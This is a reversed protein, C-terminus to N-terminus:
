QNAPNLLNYITARGAPNELLRGYNTPQGNGLVLSKVTNSNLASNAARGGAIVAPVLPLTGTAGAASLGLGGMVVRQAAGHPSERTRLFQAAIDSLESLDPNKLGKLGAMKAISVGGEAGNQVMSEVDLMNGYQQRVSKFAAAEQPGLSRDLADMLRKKLERAYFAENSNRSGIRDLTKKINYAAQGDIAGGQATKELILDVQKGIIRAGAEDLEDAALKTVNVLDDLFTNDVKVGNSSLTTEFKKGLDNSAKKVAAVVNDSDQGFTRSVAKNFQSLMKEETGARGSLPVYNLSSAVANLPRSNAIRDAPIDIGLDVARQYLAAVEPSAGKPLVANRVAKGAEGAVKVAGPLGGGIVAGTAADAPNVLGASVGGTIAGGATRTAADAVKGGLTTAAPTGLRFGGTEIAAALKPAFQAVAPIAIGGSRVGKAIAGGVGATGAIESATEGIRFANSERDANDGFFEKISARREQSSSKPRAGTVLDGVRMDTKGTIKDGVYDFPAALTAGINAAGSLAGMGINKVTDIATDKVAEWNVGSNSEKPPPAVLNPFEREVM